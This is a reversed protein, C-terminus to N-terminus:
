PAAALSAMPAELTFVAGGPPFTLSARGAAGQALSREILRSGFGARAPPLVPPGGSEEWRFRFAEGQVAWTIAVRGGPRSLAGHKAANTGLEHLMLALTLGFRACLTIEPGSVAFRDAEGGGHLAAATAVLDALAASQWTGQLLVEHARSLALLRAELSERAAALTGAGRLTQASIAQVLALTNKVRHALEQMLLTQRDENQKSETIDRSVALIREPRGDAGDIPTVAIDWWTVGAGDLRAQFRRPRGARADELAAAVAARSEPAAWLATWPRGILAASGEVEFVAPANASVTILRGDLDLVKVCDTTTWLIRRNFEESARLQLNLEEADALRAAGDALDRRHLADLAEAEARSASREAAIIRGLRANRAIEADAQLSTQALLVRLHRNESELSALHGALGGEEPLTIVDM